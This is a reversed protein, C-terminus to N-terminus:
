TYDTNAENSKSAQFNSKITDMFINGYKDVRTQGIGEVALLASKTVIRQQVIAALQENTFINYVPTAEQEAITKRLDRLQAYLAFDAENLVEKYDIKNKRKPLSDALAGEGELWTLCISWFSNAGDAVFYRDIHAIRHQSIFINLETEVNVPDSVPVKFFKHKM